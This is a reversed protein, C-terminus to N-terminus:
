IKKMRNAVTVVAYCTHVMKCKLVFRLVKQLLNKPVFESLAFRTTEDNLISKMAARQEKGSLHAGKAKNRLFVSIIHKIHSYLVVQRADFFDNDTIQLFELELTFKRKTLEYFQPSYTNVLTQHAPKRYNYFCDPIVIIHEAKAFVAINFLFDEILKTAEFVVGTNRLFDSRYVKNCAYPFVHAQTLQLFIEGSQRITEGVVAECPFVETHVVEGEKNEHVRTVGFVAIETQPALVDKVTRLTDAHITDDSDMFLIYEGAASEMGTNRAMGLGQNKPKHIVQIRSDKKAYEDCIQPCSDPSMDDVLLLEFNDYTQKLVSQIAEELYKEVGYVPMIVSFFPKSKM